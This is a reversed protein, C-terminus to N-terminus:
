LKPIQDLASKLQGSNLFVVKIPVGFWIYSRMGPLPAFTLSRLCGSRKLAHSSLTPVSLGKKAYKKSSARDLSNDIFKDGDELLANVQKILEEKYSKEVSQQMMLYHLLHLMKHMMLADKKCYERLASFVFYMLEYFDITRLAIRKTENGDRIFSYDHKRMRLAFLENLYDLCSNATGPDNIGPSM